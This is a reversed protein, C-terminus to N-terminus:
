YGHDKRWDAFAGFFFQSGMAGFGGIGNMLGFLAGLHRGSVERASSWWSPLMCMTAMSSLAACAAMARPSEFLLGLAVLAAAASFAVAGLWRRRHTMGFRRLLDDLVGGLLNGTAAGALVLSALWGAEVQPVRRAEQLYKPFWTLYLYSNFASFIMILALTWISRNLAILAWPIAPHKVEDAPRAGGLLALEAPNVAPHIAPDDRFWLWFLAAW